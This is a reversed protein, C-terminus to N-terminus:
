KLGQLYCTSDETGRNNFVIDNIKVPSAKRVAHSNTLYKSPEEIVTDNVPFCVNVKVLKTSFGYRAFLSTRMKLATTTTALLSPCLGSMSKSSKIPPSIDDGSAIVRM